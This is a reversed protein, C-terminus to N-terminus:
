KAVARHRAAVARRLIRDRQAPTMRRLQRRAGKALRSWVGWAPGCQGHIVSFNEDRVLRRM